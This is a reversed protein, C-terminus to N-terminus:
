RFVDFEQGVRDRLRERHEALAPASLGVGGAHEGLLEDLAPQWNHVHVGHADCPSQTM